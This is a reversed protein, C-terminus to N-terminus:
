MPFTTWCIGAYTCMKKFEEGNLYDQIMQDQQAAMRDCVDFFVDPMSACVEEFRAKVDTYGASQDLGAHIKTWVFRCGVCGEKMSVTRANALGGAISSAANLAGGVGSAISGFIGEAKRNTEMDVASVSAAFLAVLAVLLAVKM